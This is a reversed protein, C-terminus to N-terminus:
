YGQSQAFGMRMFGDLLEAVQQSQHTEPILPTGGSSPAQQMYPMDGASVNIPSAGGGSLGAGASELGKGVGSSLEGWGFQYPAQTAVPSGNLTATAFQGGLM